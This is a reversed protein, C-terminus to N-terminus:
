TRLLSKLNYNFVREENTMCIKILEVSTQRKSLYEYGTVLDRVAPMLKNYRM